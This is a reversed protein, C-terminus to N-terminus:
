TSSLIFFNFITFPAYSVDVAVVLCSEFVAFCTFFFHVNQPTFQYHDFVPVRVFVAQFRFSVSSPLVRTRSLTYVTVSM